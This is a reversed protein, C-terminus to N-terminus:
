IEISNKLKKSLKSYSAYFIKKLYFHQYNESLACFMTIILLTTGRIKNLVPSKSPKLKAWDASEIRHDEYEVGAQAFLLRTVEARGRLNFYTLKYKSM